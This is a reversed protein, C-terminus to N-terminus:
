LDEIRDPLKQMNSYRLLKRSSSDEQWGFEYHNDPFKRLAHRVIVERTALNRPACQEISKDTELTVLLGHRIFIRIYDTIEQPHTDASLEVESMPNFGIREKMKEGAAMGIDRYVHRTPEGPDPNEILTEAEFEDTTLYLTTM